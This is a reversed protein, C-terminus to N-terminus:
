SLSPDSVCQKPDLPCVIRRRKATGNEDGEIVPDSSPRFHEGCFDQGSVRELKCFRRKRAVFFHCRNPNPNRMPMVSAENSKVPDDGGNSVGSEM